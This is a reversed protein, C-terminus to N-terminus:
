SDLVRAKANPGFDTGALSKVLDWSKCWVFQGHASVVEPQADTTTGIIVGVLKDRVTFRVLVNGHARMTFENSAAEVEEWSSYHLMGQFRIVTAPTPKVFGFGRGTHGDNATVALRVFRTPVRLSLIAPYITGQIGVSKASPLHRFLEEPPEPSTIFQQYREPGGLEEHAVTLEHDTPPDETSM